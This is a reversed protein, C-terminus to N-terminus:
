GLDAQDNRAKRKDELALHVDNVRVGAFADDKWFWPFDEKSRAPERGRDDGWKINPKWRLVGAGAKGGDIDEAMFPRINLRVGDTIDPDWGLPQQKLPKWRIFLDFPKEGALIQDLRKKLDQAAILRAEAGGEGAKVAAQQRTIWDGLYGFILNELTRRGQGRPAALKHYNVLAHFGDRCGDWIHWIFPINDFLKCHQEFFEDRLWDELKDFKSGCASLLENEIQPRWAGGFFSQLMQRLRDPLATEGKLSNLSGIGDLDIHSELKKLEIQDDEPTLVGIKEPCIEPPWKFGLLRPVFVHLLINDSKPIGNFIWQTPDSCVCIPLERSNQFDTLEFPVRL